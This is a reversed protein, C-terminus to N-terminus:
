LSSGPSYSVFACASYRAAAAAAHTSAPALSAPVRSACRPGRSASSASSVSSTSHRAVSATRPRAGLLRRQM